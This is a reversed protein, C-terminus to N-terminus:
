ETDEIVYAPSTSSVDTCQRPESGDRWESGDDIATMAPRKKWPGYAIIARRLMVIIHNCNSCNRM